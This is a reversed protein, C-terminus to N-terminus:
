KHHGWGSPKHTSRPWVSWRRMAKMFAYWTGAEWLQVGDVGCYHSAGIGSNEREANNDVRAIEIWTKDSYTVFEIWHQTWWRDAGTISPDPDHRLIYKFLVSQSEDFASVSVLVPTQFGPIGDFSGVYLSLLYLGGRRTQIPDSTRLVGVGQGDDTLDVFYDGTAPPPGNKGDDLLQNGRRCWRVPGDIVTWQNPLHDGPVLRM